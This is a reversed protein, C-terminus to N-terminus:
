AANLNDSALQVEEKKEQLSAMSEATTLIAVKGEESAKRYCNILHWEINNIESKPKEEKGINLVAQEILRVAQILEDTDGGAGKLLRAKLDFGLERGTPTTVIFDEQRQPSSPLNVEFKFGLAEQVNQPLASYHYEYAVGRKGEIQRKRWNKKTARRTVNSAQVPLGGIGALESATFWEKLSNM